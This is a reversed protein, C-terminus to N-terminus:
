VHDPKKIRQEPRMVQSIFAGAKEITKENKFVESKLINIRKRLSDSLESIEGRKKYRSVLENEDDPDELQVPKGLVKQIAWFQIQDNILQQFTNSNQYYSLYHFILEEIEEDKREIVLIVDKAKPDLGAHILATNVRVGFDEISNLDSDVSYVGEIFKLWKEKEKDKRKFNKWVDFDKFSKSAM